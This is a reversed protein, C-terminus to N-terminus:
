RIKGRDGSRRVPPADKPGLKPPNLMAWFLSVLSFAIIALFLTVAVAVIDFHIYIREIPRPVPEGNVKMSPPIKYDILVVEARPIGARLAGPLFPKARNATNVADIALDAAFYMGITLVIFMLCGVGRWLPSIGKKPQDAERPRMNLRGM